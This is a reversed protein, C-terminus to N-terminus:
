TCVCVIYNTYDYIGVADDHDSLIDPELNYPIKEGEAGVYASSRLALTRQIQFFQNFHYGRFDRQFAKKM